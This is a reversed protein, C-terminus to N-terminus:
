GPRAPHAAFFAWMTANADVARSQQGLVKTVGAPLPPGGPWEHGEATISYLEVVSGAACGGYELLSYGPGATTTPAAECGDHEAWRAAATPVSYTWYAQGNGNYPDVPDATGHFAVVPVPRRAPCPDPFRLGAVPAVAAFTGAADCALQSAM